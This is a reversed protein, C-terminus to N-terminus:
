CALHGRRNYDCHKEVCEENNGVVVQFTSTIDSLALVDTLCKMLFVAVSVWLELLGGRLKSHPM